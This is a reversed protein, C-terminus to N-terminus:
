SFLLKKLDVAKDIYIVEIGKINKLKEKERRSCIVKDYGMQKADNVRKEILPVNRVEGTLGVEGLLITDLAVPIQYNSSLASAIISLDAERGNLRLGGVVNLYVDSYSLPIQFYKEIVAILLSLRNSDIGQGTRRGNGYKNEVVLSQIEVFISRTGELLCTISRGFSDQSKDDIFYNSPNTVQKLGLGSMEFIGVEHTNGFRNKVSRLIRYLGVEDGEFYIVTDVMHELMKPGAISGEKTVHGVIFSTFGKGKCLNMLDYTIEKIQSSSGTNSQLELTTTTQISDLIFLEPRVDNLHDKIVEWCTENLILLNESSINLRKARNAVQGESEEGSVYLIKKEPNKSLIASCVELLLTSKGIGPQGGILTLSNKTVGGGLVRDFEQLGTEIRSFSVSDVETISKPRKNSNKKAVTQSKTGQTISEEMTNWERCGSCQGMWKTSQFGCANCTYLVREKAM